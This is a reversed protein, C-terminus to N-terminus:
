KVNSRAYALLAAHRQADPLNGVRRAERYFEGFDDHAGHLMALFAPVKDTYTAILALNANNLDQQMFRDYVAYDHKARWQQYAQKLETFRRQKQVRKQEISIPQAYLERLSERTQQLMRLIAHRQQQRKLYAQYRVPQQMHAFWRQLGAQEVANAFSENFSSDDKVYVTQHGLEHFLTGIIDADNTELMTNLVPDNFWGLTSYALAGSIAVDYGQQKLEKAFERADQEHFYGRYNFCGAFAYCWRRPTVSYAPTGIVNWTVYPRKLDAYETYSGNDPLQLQESAFHRASQVLQLKNRLVPDLDAQQLMEKIPQERSVIDFHGDMAQWYYGVSSCASLLLM